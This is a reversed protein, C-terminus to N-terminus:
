DLEDLEDRLREVMAPDEIARGTAGGSDGPAGHRTASRIAAVVFVIGVIGILPPGIWALAGMGRFEPVARIQPGFREVLDDEIAESTEGADLRAALEARLERAGDSRCDALLLGPCFPSMLSHTLTSTRQEVSQAGLRSACLVVVIIVVIACVLVRPFSRAKMLHRLFVLPPM